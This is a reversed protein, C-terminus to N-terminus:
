RIPRASSRTSGERVGIASVVIKSPQMAGLIEQLVIAGYPLLSRRNKSVGEIGKVKEM